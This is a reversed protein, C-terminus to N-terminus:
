HRSRRAFSLLIFLCILLVPWSGTVMIPTNGQRPTIKGQLLTEVSQDTAAEINGAPNIIASVGNNTGRLLPRGTELARFRAMQLHQLPGISDGFWSDNSVTVLFDAGRSNKTVFDPYVIEYCIFPAIQHSGAWLVAQQEPGPAFNSMPLDFFKILGRLWRELPVYEGFPVLKQKHHEGHGLGIAMISNHQGSAARIPIGTILTTETAIAHDRIERLYDSVQHRYAPLASEPWLLIDASTFAPLSAERYQNLHQNFLRRDWKENLPINPQYIAVTLVEGSPQTWSVNKLGEGAAGIIAISTLALTLLRRAKGSALFLAVCASGLGVLWLSAGYVGIMPAWGAVPTDLSAYGAYLWPFGTLLWSRLWEFLVWLAPFALLAASWGRPKFWRAYLAGQAAFLIALGSCFLATLLTALWPPAGGYVNISVYVWSAGVGFFGLGYRWGLWVAGHPTDSHLLAAFLASSLPVMIWIDFPSLGLPFLAGAILPALFRLLGSGHWSM